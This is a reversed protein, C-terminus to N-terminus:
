NSENIKVEIIGKDKLDVKYSMKLPEVSIAKGEGLETVVKKGVKPLLKNCERYCEDEYKLCCLLRGCIGNIKSPNLAFNQNKAMNISVSDFDSLFKSCCLERGCYGYGGIEKAKDRVGVQRLEIRTKYISALEKALKRFDVRNDSLFTFLLQSKDFSYSADLVVMNLNMEKVIEKCKDLAKKALKINNQNNAIDKKSCIRVIDNIKLPLKSKEIKTNLIVVTGCQLGRETDVIVKDDKTLELNNSNFYYIQGNKKFSVGVVERM